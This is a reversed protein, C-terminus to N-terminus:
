RSSASSSMSAPDLAIFARGNSLIFQDIAYLQQASLSGPHIIALVDTNAPIETFDPTLKTVDLLRGM